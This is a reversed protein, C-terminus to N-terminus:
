QNLQSSILLEKKLTCPVLRRVQLGYTKGDLVLKVMAHQDIKM